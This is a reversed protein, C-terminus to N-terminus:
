GLEAHTDYWGPLPTGRLRGLATGLLRVHRHRRDGFLRYERFIRRYRREAEALSIWSEEPLDEGFAGSSARKFAYRLPAGDRSRTEISQRKIWAQQVIAFRRYGADSLERLEECVKDYSVKDSEMSIFRPKCKLAAIAGLCIDDAGEIDIKVYHPTGHRAFLEACSLVRVEIERVDRAGRARNIDAVESSVTSWQSNNRNVYFTVSGSAAAVDEGCIAGEEIILRGAAIADGFRERCQEALDHNAEVAIVRFGKKLYYDTDNGVHMGIDFILDDQPQAQM